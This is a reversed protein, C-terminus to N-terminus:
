TGQKMRKCIKIPTGRLLFTDRRRRRGLIRSLPGVSQLSNEQDKNEPDIVNEGEDGIGIFEGNHVGNEPVIGQSEVTNFNPVISDPKKEVHRIADAFKGKKLKNSPAFKNKYVQDYPWLNKSSVNAFELTGYFVVAYREGGGPVDSCNIKAPWPPYGKVKAFVLDGPNYEM